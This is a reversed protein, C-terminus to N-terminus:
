RRIIQLVGGAAGKELRKGAKKWFNQFANWFEPFVRSFDARATNTDVYIM